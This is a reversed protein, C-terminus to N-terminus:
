GVLLLQVTAHKLYVDCTCSVQKCTPGTSMELQCSKNPVMFTYLPLTVQPISM